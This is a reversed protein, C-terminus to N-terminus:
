KRAEIEKAYQEETKGMLIAASINAAAGCAGISIDALHRDDDNGFATDTVGAWYRSELAAIRFCEQRTQQQIERKEEDSM